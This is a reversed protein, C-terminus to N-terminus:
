QPREQKIQEDVLARAADCVNVGSAPKSALLVNARAQSKAAVSEAAAVAAAASAARAEAARQLGLIADNQTKAQADLVGYAAKDNEITKASAGLKVDLEAVIPEYHRSALYAGVGLLAAVTALVALVRALTSAIM